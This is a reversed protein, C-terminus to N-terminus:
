TGSAPPESKRELCRFGDGYRAARGSFESIQGGSHTAACPQRINLGHRYELGAATRSRLLRLAWGGDKVIQLNGCGPCRRFECAPDFGSPMTVELERLKVAVIEWTEVPPCYGTSQNSIRAVSISKKDCELFLEGAARVPGGMACAVHESRRAALWLRGDADVVYTAPILGEGDAEERRAMVWALLDRRGAIEVRGRNPEWDKISGVYPLLREIM